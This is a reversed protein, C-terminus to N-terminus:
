SPAKAPRRRPSAGSPPCASISPAAPQSRRDIQALKDSAGALSIKLGEIEGLWGEREAEAIRATLNDRIEAIRHRQAPDMALAHQLAPLSHEHICPDRLRARM